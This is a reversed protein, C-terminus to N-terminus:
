IKRIQKITTSISHDNKTLVLPGFCIYSKTSSYIKNMSIDIGNNPINKNLIPFWVSFPKLPFCLSKFKKAGNPSITYAPIGFCKDLALLSPMNTLNMFNDITSRMQDQNMVVVGSSIGPLLNLSLIADFNWGWLVIDWDNSISNLLIEQTSYFDRRFIADDEAITLSCNENIAKEWLSLHSLACGYAGKSYNLGKEFLLENHFDSDSLLIGDIADFFEYDIHSNKKVFIERRSPTRKLSIIQTKIM